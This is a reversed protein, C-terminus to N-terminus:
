PLLEVEVEAGEELGELEAPIRVMGHGYVMSSVLGSKRFVPVASAGAPGTELRVQVFDEEIFIGVALGSIAHRYVCM